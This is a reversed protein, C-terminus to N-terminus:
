ENEMGRELLEALERKARDIEKQPTKQTKKLFHHLLVFGGNFWYAFLIRNRIPRLEWIRGDLHKIYPEGIETGCKGLFKIYELIKNLQIRSNKDKKSSLEKLFEKIPSKGKKDTYYYIGHLYFGGKM